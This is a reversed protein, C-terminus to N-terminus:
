RRWRTPLRARSTLLALQDWQLGAKVLRGERSGPPANKQGSHHVGPRNKNVAMRSKRKGFKVPQGLKGTHVDRNGQDDDGAEGHDGADPPM